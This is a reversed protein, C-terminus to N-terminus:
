DNDSECDQGGLVDPRMAEHDSGLFFGLMNLFGRNGATKTCSSAKGESTPEDSEPEGHHDNVVQGPGDEVSEEVFQPARYGSPDQHKGAGNQYRGCYDRTHGGLTFRRSM